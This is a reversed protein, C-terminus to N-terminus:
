FGIDPATAIPLVGSCRRDCEDYGSFRESDRANWGGRLARTRQKGEGAGAPLQDDFRPPCVPHEERFRPTLKKTAEGIIELSRAFARKLVEDCLFAERALGDATSRMFRVEDLIHQVLERDPM